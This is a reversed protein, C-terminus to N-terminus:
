APHEHAAGGDVQRFTELPRRAPLVHVVDYTVDSKTFGWDLVSINADAIPVYEENLYAAGDPWIGVTSAAGVAEALQTM